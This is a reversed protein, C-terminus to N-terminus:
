LGETAYTAVLVKKQDLFTAEHEAIAKMNAGYVALYRRLHEEDRFTIEVFCDWDARDIDGHLLAPKGDSTRNLYNRRYSIPAADGDILGTILPVHKTEYHLKFEQPTLSPLRYCTIGLSTPM